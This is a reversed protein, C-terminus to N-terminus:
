GLLLANVCCYVPAIVFLQITYDASRTPFKLILFFSFLFLVKPYLDSTSQMLTGLTWAFSNKLSFNNVYSILEINHIEDLTTFSLDQSENNDDLCFENEDYGDEEVYDVESGNNYDEEDVYGILGDDDIDLNEDFHKNSSGIGNNYQQKYENKRGHRKKIRKRMGESRNNSNNSNEKQQNQKPKQKQHQQHQHKEEHQHNRNNQRRANLVFNQRYEMNMWISELDNQENMVCMNKFYQQHLEPTSTSYNECCNGEDVGEKFENEKLNGNVEVNEDGDHDMACCNENIITTIEDERIIMLDEHGDFSNLSHHHQFETDNIEDDDENKYHSCVSAKKWELPSIQAVIYM